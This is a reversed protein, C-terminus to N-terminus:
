LVIILALGQGLDIFIYSYSVLMYIVTIAIWPESFGSDIYYVCVYIIIYIYIYIYNYIYSLLHPLTHQSVESLGNRSAERQQQKQVRTYM